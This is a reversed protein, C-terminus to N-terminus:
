NSICFVSVGIVTKEPSITKPQSLDGFCKEEHSKWFKLKDISGSYIVGPDTASSIDSYHFLPHCGSGFASYLGFLNLIM